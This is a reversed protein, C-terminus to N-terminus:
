TRFTEKDKPRTFVFECKDRLCFLKDQVLPCLTKSVSVRIFPHRGFMELRFGGVGYIIIIQIIIQM